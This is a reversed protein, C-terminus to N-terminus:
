RDTGPLSFAARLWLDGLVWSHGGQGVLWCGTGAQM